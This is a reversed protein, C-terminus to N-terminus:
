KRNRTKHKAIRYIKKILEPLDSYIGILVDKPAYFLLFLALIPRCLVKVIRIHSISKLGLKKLWEIEQKQPHQPLLRRWQFLMVGALSDIHFTNCIISRAPYWRQEETGFSEPLWSVFEEFQEGWIKLFKDSNRWFSGGSKGPITEEMSSVNYYCGKFQKYNGYYDYYLLLPGWINKMKRSNLFKLILSFDRRRFYVTSLTIGDSCHEWYLKIPDDYETVSGDCSDVHYALGCTQIVDYSKEMLKMIRDVESIIPRRTDGGLCIYEAKIEHLIQYTRETPTTAPIHYYHLNNNVKRNVIKQTDENESGDVFYVGINREELESLCIDIYNNVAEPRNNTVIVFAIKYEEVQICVSQGNNQVGGWVNKMNKM